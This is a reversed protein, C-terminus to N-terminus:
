RAGRLLVGPNFLPANPDARPVASFGDFAM